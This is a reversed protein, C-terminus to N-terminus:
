SATSLHVFRPEGALFPGISDLMGTEIRWSIYAQQNERAAWKEWLIVLDPNDQDIYTEVMECGEFKRTDALAPLLVKVFEAGKGPACRFEAFLTHSM